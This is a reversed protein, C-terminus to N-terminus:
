AVVEEVRLVEVGSSIQRNTLTIRDGEGPINKFFADAQVQDRFLDYVVRPTEIEAKTDGVINDLKNDEVEEGPEPLEMLCFLWESPNSNLRYCYLIKFLGSGLLFGLGIVKFLHLRLKIVTGPKFRLKPPMGGKVMRIIGRKRKDHLTSRPRFFGRKRSGHSGM